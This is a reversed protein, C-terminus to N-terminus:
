LGLHDPPHLEVSEDFRLVFPVSQWLLMRWMKPIATGVYFKIIMPITYLHLFRRSNRPVCITLFHSCAKTAGLAVWQLDNPCIGTGVLGRMSLPAYGDKM